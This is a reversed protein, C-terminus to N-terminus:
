IITTIISVASTPKHYTIAYLKGKGKGRGKEVCAYVPTRTYVFCINERAACWVM